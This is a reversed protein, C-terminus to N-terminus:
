SFGLSMYAADVYVGGIKLDRCVVTGQMVFGVREYMRRAASTHPQLVWLHMQELGDLSRAQEILQRLISQGIGCGRHEPAVFMTHIYGKHRAKSRGDRKFTAIGILVPEDEQSGSGSGAVSGPVRGAVPASLSVATSVPPHSAAAMATAFAGLTFHEQSDNNGDGDGDGDGDDCRMMMVRQFYEIPQNVEDEFSESFSSASEQFARLRLARYRAVDDKTLRRVSALATM